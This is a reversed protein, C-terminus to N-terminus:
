SEPPKGSELMDLLRPYILDVVQNPQEPDIFDHPVNESRPFEYTEVAEPRHSRWRDALNATVANNGAYDSASTIILISGCAPAAKNASALVDVGLQMTGGISRTSFRPYVSAPGALNEKQTPDWWIFFNPLRLLLRSLPANTWQPVGYPSFFPALLVVRGVDARNQAIWASTTGNISLGAVTLTRGLGRSLSVAENAADLMGAATFDKLKDTMVDAEGHWPTLPIVVNHGREFLMRGLRDFQQPSNCLGHLLVFVTETPGEHLFARPRNAAAVTAPTAAFLKEIGSRASAYDAQPPTPLLPFRQPMPLFALLLVAAVIAGIGFIAWRFIQRAKEFFKM